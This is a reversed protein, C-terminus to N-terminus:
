ASPWEIQTRGVYPKDTLVERVIKSPDLKVRKAKEEDMPEGRLENNVYFGMRFFEKGEFLAHLLLVTVGLVEGQRLKAFSPAPVKLLFQSPGVLLPGVLVSELLQDHASSETSGVYVVKFEVDARLKASVHLTIDFEFPQDFTSSSNLMSVNVVNVLAM